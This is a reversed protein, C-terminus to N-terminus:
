VDVIDIGNLDFKANIRNYIAIVVQRYTWGAPINPYGRATLWTNLRTRVAEAIVGDLEAWRVIGESVLCIGYVNPLANIAVLQAQTGSFLYAGWNGAIHAGLTYGKCPTTAFNINPKGNVMNCIAFGKM